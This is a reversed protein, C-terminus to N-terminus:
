NNVKNIIDGKRLGAKGAPSDPFVMNIKAFLTRGSGDGWSTIRLGCGYDSGDEASSLTGNASENTLRSWPDGEYKIANFYNAPAEEKSIKSPQAQEAWFYEETMHSEVFENIKYNESRDKKDGIKNDQCSFLLGVLLFSYLSIKM